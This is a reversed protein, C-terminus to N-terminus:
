PSKIVIIANMAGQSEPYSNTTDVSDNVMQIVRAAGVTRPIIGTVRTVLFFELSHFTKASLFEDM